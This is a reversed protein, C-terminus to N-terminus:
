QKTRASSGNGTRRSNRAREASEPADAHRLYGAFLLQDAFAAIQENSLKGKPRFWRYMSTGAGIILQSVILPDLDRFEGAAVGDAYARAFRALLKERRELVLKASAPPLNRHEQLSIATRHPTSVVVIFHARVMHRFREAPDTIGAIGADIAKDLDDFINAFIAQLIDHKARFHYYLAQRTVGLREAVDNLNTGLYGKKAFVDTAAELIEDEM